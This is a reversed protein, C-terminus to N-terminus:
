HPHLAGEQADVLTKGTAASAIMKVFNVMRNGKTDWYYANVNSVRILSISPDDKGEKFWAKALPSWLEEIKNKDTSISAEGNVVMYSSKGPHAYYLQVKSDAEIERNKDSDKASFFWIDGNDDVQQTSMPRTTAGDQQKLNTCFLCLDIDKALERLKQIANQRELNVQNDM